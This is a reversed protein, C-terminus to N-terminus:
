KAHFDKALTLMRSFNVKKTKMYEILRNLMRIRYAHGICSPHCTLVFVRQNQPIDAMELLAEFQSKWIEFVVSPPQQHEEFLVWDDLYWEVPFEVLNKTSGPVSLLYPRDEDMLSSDYVYGMEAILKLTNSSLKWYPARFGVIEGVTDMLLRNTREHVDKEEYISLTDLNEHLYGHAAIEHEQAFINEVQEPYKEAVWGCTFFTAQIEHKKLLSLIRPIGRRVAFQGKSVRVPEERQRVQVTEADFDFTLCVTIKNM